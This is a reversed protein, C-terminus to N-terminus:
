RMHGISVYTNVAQCPVSGIIETGALRTIKPAQVIDSAITSMPQTAAESTRDGTIPRKTDICSWPSPQVPGRWIGELDGTGARRRWPAGAFIRRFRAIWSVRRSALQGRM